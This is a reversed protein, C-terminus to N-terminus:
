QCIIRVNIFGCSYLMIESILAYDPVMMAVTRFLAQWCSRLVHCLCCCLRFDGYCKKWWCFCIELKMRSLWSSSDLSNPSPPMAPSYDYLVIVKLGSNTNPLFLRGNSSLTGRDFVQMKSLNSALHLCVSKGTTDTTCKWAGTTHKEHKKEQMSSHQFHNQNKKKPEAGSNHRRLTWRRHRFGIKLYSVQHSLNLCSRLTSFSTAIQGCSQCWINQLQDGM